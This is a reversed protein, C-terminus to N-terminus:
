NNAEVFVVAAESWNNDVDIEVESEPLAAEVRFMHAGVSDIVFPGFWGTNVYDTYPGQILHTRQHSYGGDIYLTFVCDVSHLNGWMRAPLIVWCEQGAILTDASASLQYTDAVILDGVVLDPGEPLYAPLQVHQEATSTNGSPDIMQCQVSWEGFPVPHLHNSGARAFHFFDTDWDGDNDWDWRVMLAELDHNSCTTETLDFEFRVSMPNVNEFEHISVSFRAVLDPESEPVTSNSCGVVIASVIVLALIRYRSQFLRVGERLVVLTRKLHLRPRRPVQSLM